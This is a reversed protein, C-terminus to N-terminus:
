HVQQAKVLKWFIGFIRDAVAVHQNDTMSKLTAWVSGEGQDPMQTLSELVWSLDPQIDQALDEPSLTHFSLYANFLRERLSLSSTAMQQVAVLMKERAYDQHPDLM